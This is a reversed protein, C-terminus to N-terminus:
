SRNPRRERIGSIASLHRDGVSPGTLTASASACIIGDNPTGSSESVEITLQPLSSVDAVVGNCDNCDNDKGDCLEPAGPYVTPDGDDCDDGGCAQDYFGDGDADPCLRWLELGMISDDAAVFLANNYLVYTVSETLYSFSSSSGPNSDKVLLALAGDYMWLEFGRVGDDAVFFTRQRVRDHWFPFFRRVQTSTRSSRPARPRAM